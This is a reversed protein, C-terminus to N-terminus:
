SLYFHDGYESVKIEQRQFPFFIKVNKRERYNSKEKLMATNWKGVSGIVGLAALPHSIV